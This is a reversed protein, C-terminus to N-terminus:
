VIFPQFGAKQLERVTAAVIRALNAIGRSGVGLAIAGRRDTAAAVRAVGEAVAADLDQLRPVAVQHRVLAVEPVPRDGYLEKALRELEPLARAFDLSNPAPGAM